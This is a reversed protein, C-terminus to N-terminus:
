WTIDNSTSSSIALQNDLDSDSRTVKQNKTISRLPFSVGSTEKSLWSISGPFIFRIDSHILAAEMWAALDQIGIPRLLCHFPGLTTDKM